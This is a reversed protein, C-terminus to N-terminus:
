TTPCNTLWNPSPSGTEALEELILAM